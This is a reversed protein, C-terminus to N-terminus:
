LKWMLTYDKKILVLIPMFRNLIQGCQQLPFVRVKMWTNNKGFLMEKKTMDEKAVNIFEDMMMKINSGIQLINKQIRPIYVTKNICHNTKLIICYIITYISPNQRPLVDELRPVM